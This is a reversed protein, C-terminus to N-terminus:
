PRSIRRRCFHSCLMRVAYHRLHPPASAKSWNKSAQTFQMPACFERSGGEAVWGLGLPMASRMAIFVVLRNDSNYFEVIIEQFPSQAFFAFANSRIPTPRLIGIATVM